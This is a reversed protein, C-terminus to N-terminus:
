VTVINCVFVFVNSLGFNTNQFRNVDQAIHIVTVSLSATEEAVLPYQHFNLLRPRTHPSPIGMEQITIAYGKTRKSHQLETSYRVTGWRESLAPYYWGGM